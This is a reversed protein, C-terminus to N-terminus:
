ELGVSKMLEKFRPNDRIPEIIPWHRMVVLLPDRDKLAQDLHAMAEDHHGLVVPLLSLYVSPIYIEKSREVQERQAVEAYERDGSLAHALALEIKPWAHGGSLTIAKGLYEFAKPYNGDIMHGLGIVRHLMFSNPDRALAVQAVAVEEAGRDASFYTLGLSIAPLSALPDLELTRRGEAIAEDIRGEVGHLYYYAYWYRAPVYNPKIDIATRLQAAASPWDWNYLVNVFGLSSYAEALNDNISLARLASEESKPMIEHPRSMGHLGLMAYADACGAHAQAFDPDIELARQFYELARQIGYGRQELSFRGLLYLDYAEVSETSPRVIPAVRAGAFTLEMQHVIAAAIEDQIQFIDGFRRDYTESWLHYGDSVKVLQATIRIHDGSKRVSGELIVEVNLKSGIESLAAAKGKFSFSSTRAAIRLGELHALVNIIEETIGDAFYENEPDASMNAFPLVAISPGLTSDDRFRKTEELLVSFQTEMESPDVGSASSLAELTDVVQLATQYREEPVKALCRAVLREFDRPTGSDLPKFKPPEDHIVANMTEVLSDRLFARRGSLLEYLISGLSFIDSRYDAEQGRAQEPSMYPATGLIMGPFVESPLTTDDPKGPTEAFTRKVKAIGFDLIKVFGDNAVIINDPKLDRHAIGRIHAAALGRSIQLGYWLAEKWSVSTRRMAERLTKGELYEMVAYTVGGEAGFDHINVINPHSVAALAKAETEFRSQARQDSALHEPLVKIAVERDLNMDRARYVAGM